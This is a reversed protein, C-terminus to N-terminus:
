CRLSILQKRRSMERCGQRAPSSGKTHFMLIEELFPASASPIAVVGEEGSKRCCGGLQQARRCKRLLLGQWVLSGRDWGYEM